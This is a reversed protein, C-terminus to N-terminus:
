KRRSAWGDDALTYGDALPGNSARSQLPELAESYRLPLIQNRIKPASIILGSNTLMDSGGVNFEQLRRFVDGSFFQFLVNSVSIADAILRAREDTDFRYHQGYVGYDSVSVQKRKTGSSPGLRGTAPAALGSGSRAASNQSTLPREWRYTYLGEHVPQRLGQRTASPRVLHSIAPWTRLSVLCSSSMPPIQADM